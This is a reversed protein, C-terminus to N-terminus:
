KWATAQETIEADGMTCQELSGEKAQICLYLMSTNSTCRLSRNCHTAVRVISGEAIPFATDNVQFDGSGRLILYIEENEKHSHFFPVAEGPKLTGFSIECSTTGVCDKIFQKGAFASLDGVTAYTFKEGENIKRIAEM